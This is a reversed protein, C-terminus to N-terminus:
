ARFGHLDKISFTHKFFFLFQLLTKMCPSALLSYILELLERKFIPVMVTEQVWCLLSKVQSSLCLTWDSPYHGSFWDNYSIPTIWFRVYESLHCCINTKKLETQNNSRWVECFFYKNCNCLKCEHENDDKMYYRKCNKQWHHTKSYMHRWSVKM